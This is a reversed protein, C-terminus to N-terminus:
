RDSPSTVFRKISLEGYGNIAMPSTEELIKKPLRAFLTYTVFFSFPMGKRLLESMRRESTSFTLSAELFYIGTDSIISSFPHVNTELDPVIPL